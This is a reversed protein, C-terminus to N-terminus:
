RRKIDLEAPTGIRWTAGGYIAGLSGTTTRWHEFRATDGLPTHDSAQPINLAPSVVRTDAVIIPANLAKGSTSTTTRLHTSLEPSLDSHPHDILHTLEGRRQDQEQTCNARLNAGMYGM